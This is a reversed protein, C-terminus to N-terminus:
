RDVRFRLPRRAVWAPRIRARLPSPRDGPRHGVLVMAFAMGVFTGFDIPAVGFLMGTLFCTGILAAGTGVIVGIVVLRAGQAVVMRTVRDAEAGLAMRLGIEQTRQTVIYSLVGYLGISGLALALASALGM